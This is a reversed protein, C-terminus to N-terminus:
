IGRKNVEKLNEATNKKNYRIFVIVKNGEGTICCSRIILNFEIETKIFTYGKWRNLYIRKKRISFSKRTVNLDKHSLISDM